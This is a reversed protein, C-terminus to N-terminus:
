NRRTSQEFSNLDDRLNIHKAIAVELGQIWLSAM